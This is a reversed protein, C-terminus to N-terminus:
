TPPRWSQTTLRYHHRLPLTRVATGSGSRSAHLNPLVDGPEENSNLAERTAQETPLTPTFTEPPSLHLEHVASNADGLAPARRSRPPTPKSIPPAGLPQLPHHATILADLSAQLFSITSLCVFCLYLAQDSGPVDIMVPDALQVRVFSHAPCMNRRRPEACQSAPESASRVIADVSGGHPRLTTM